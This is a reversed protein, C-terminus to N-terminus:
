GQQKGCTGDECRYPWSLIGGELVEVQDFGAAKLIVSAEYGRLGIKCVAVIERDKGLEEVRGRLQGLPINTVQCDALHLQIVEDPSRVDLLMAKGAQSKEKAAAAGIGKWRGQLKNIIGLAAVAVNDIPSSYPPAYGLDADFLDQVGGGLTLAMAVTDVRKAVEGEGFAQMGLLKHTAADVILKLSLTGAGPMYHPRDHGAITVSVYEYGAEAAQKETLGTKGVNWELVKVVVTGLVGRFSSTIGCINDAIVRGHKNATSGMPIFVNRGSVLHRNEVCDGGAYIQPDSTQLKDNVAIAGSQGILLGAEKALQVNPKAGVALIVLEAPISRKDTVVAEVAGAGAFREVKEELFLQIGKSRLYKHVPEAIDADLFGPFIQAKMEVISVQVGWKSLAEAMEVGILGGGIIVANRYDGRELGMRIRKADELHWLQYINELDVGSLNPRIPSAGMALVLYDYGVQEESGTHLRKVRVVKNERDIALAEVGTLVDINKVNKFFSVDRLSGAPTSMLSKIDPVDGGVYYPLGCAGYSVQEGREVVTIKATSDNRRLKAAAKMGAAVGGIIVINM